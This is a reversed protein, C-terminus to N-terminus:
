ACGVAAGINRTALIEKAPRRDGNCAIRRPADILAVQFGLGSYLALIRETAQNSAVVPGPHAALWGALRVQDDWRFDDTAYRTFETDFPPDCYLFDDPQVAVVSGKEDRMEEFDGCTITWHGLVSAYRRFDSDLRVSKHRGFPVNFEGRSNFRCLGNFCTRNLYYFLEAAELTEHEGCGVLANFRSRAAYYCDASYELGGSAWFGRQLQRLFNVVHPNADNLLARDPMLGLAVAMGGVFPEVLRRDRFPAYLRLLSPVLHRKGGAWKLPPDLRPLSLTASPVPVPPALPLVDEPMEGM